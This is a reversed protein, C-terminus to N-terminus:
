RWESQQNDRFDAFASTVEAFEAPAHVPEVIADFEINHREYQTDFETDLIINDIM